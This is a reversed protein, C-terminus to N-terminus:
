DFKMSLDFAMVSHTLAGISIYDVDLDRLAQIRKKDMNGSLEISARGQIIKIGNEMTARDMNDLMIIDAGADIAERVENLNTTEVEIKYESGHHERVQDVARQVSGAARIHNDKIMVMDYLGMRHNKGGGCAVAYKDLIRFGPLTKRTDLISISSEKLIEAYLNTMTAIGSMRQIFNLVTREGELVSITPGDIRCILDGKEVQSGDVVEPTVTVKADIFNYVHCVLDMGCFVGQSKAVISARIRDEPTFISRSTVDGDRIDEELALEILKSVQEPKITDKM